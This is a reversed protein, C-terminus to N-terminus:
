RPDPFSPLTFCFRSGKGPESEVRFVGRNAEVFEHCLLLGLGVGKENATGFTTVSEKRNIKKLVEKEIGIGTDVVCIEVTDGTANGEVTIADGANCFKIANSILNRILVQVMNDDAWAQLSDPIKNKLGIKKDSATKILPEMTESVLEQMPLMIPTITRGDLQSSAWSLLNNTLEASYDIDRRLENIIAHLDAEPLSHEKLIALMNRLSYLPMKLDHSIVSFLRDKEQNSLLLQVAQHEIEDNKAKLLQNTKQKAAKSHFLL